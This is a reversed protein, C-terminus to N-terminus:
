DSMNPPTWRETSGQDVNLEGEILGLATSDLHTKASHLATQARTKARDPLAEYALEIEGPHEASLFELLVSAQFVDKAAKERQAVRLTSSVLKHLAFRAPDPLRVPVVGHRSLIVGETSADLMFDLYPV